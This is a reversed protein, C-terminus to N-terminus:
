DVYRIGKCKDSSLSGSVVFLHKVITLLKYKSRILM